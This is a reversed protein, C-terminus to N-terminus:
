EHDTPRLITPLVLVERSKCWCSTLSSKRRLHHHMTRHGYHLSSSPMLGFCEKQNQKQRNDQEYDNSTNRWKMESIPVVCRIKVLKFPKYGDELRQSCFLIPTILKAVRNQLLIFQLTGRDEDRFLIRTNFRENIGSLFWNWKSWFETIVSNNLSLKTIMRVRSWSDSFMHIENNPSLTSNNTEEMNSFRRVIWLSRYERRFYSTDQCLNSTGQSRENRHSSKM